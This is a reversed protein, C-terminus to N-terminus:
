KQDKRISRKQKMAKTSIDHTEVLLPNKHYPVIRVCVSNHRKKANICGAILDPNASKSDPVRDFNQIYSANTLFVIASGGPLENMLQAMLQLMMRFETTQFDAIQSKHIISGNLEVIAAAAGAREVHGYDCSGGIWIYYTGAAQNM